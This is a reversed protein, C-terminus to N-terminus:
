DGSVILFSYACELNLPGAFIGETSVTHSRAQRVQFTELSFKLFYIIFLYIFKKQIKKFIPPGAAMGDFVVFYSSAWWVLFTEFSFNL